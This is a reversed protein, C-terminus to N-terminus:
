TLVGVRSVSAARARPAAATGDPEAAPLTLAFRTGPPEGDTSRSRRRGHREALERGIALGLGFGSEPAPPAAATSASSSRSASRPRSARARPRRGHDARPRERLRREVRSRSARAPRLPARQRAPDARRPRGRGPRRPGLVGDDPPVVDLEVDRERARLEFEAAVARALEGLEVPESRLPM